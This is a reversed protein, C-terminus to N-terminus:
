STVSPSSRAGARAMSRAMPMVSSSQVFDCTPTHEDHFSTVGHLMGSSRRALRALSPTRAAFANGISNVVIATESPMEMPWSPIRADSTDRSTIASETSITMCASRSSAMTVSAPHSLLKGPMSIAAARSLRGDTNTYPPDIRGPSYLPCASSMTLTNSATPAWAAPVIDSSSRFAMSHLAQGLSPLQAPMNVALVMADIESAIPM